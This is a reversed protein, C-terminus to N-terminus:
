MRKQEYKGVVTNSIAVDIKSAMILQQELEDTSREITVLYENKSQIQRWKKIKQQKGMSSIKQVGHWALVADLEHVLWGNCDTGKTEIVAKGKEEIAAAREFKKKSVELRHKEKERMSMEAAIFIDDSTLHNGGMVTFRKGATAAKMLQM